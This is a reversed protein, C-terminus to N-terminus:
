RRRILLGALGLLLASAPEPIPFRVAMEMEANWPTTDIIPTAAGTTLDLSAFVGTGGGTYITALLTNTEYDFDMGQAFNANFGTFGIPTTAGTTKDISVLEDALIDHGYMQGDASIAIDIILDAPDFDGVRTTAGTAPNLTYLTSGSSAFFTEDTPDVSLGGFNAEGAGDGSIPGIANFAGTGTDITGFEIIPAFTIAYLTTALSDYDMAFTDYTIGSVTINEAPANAPFELLENDGRLNFAVVDGALAAPAMMLSVLTTVIFARM